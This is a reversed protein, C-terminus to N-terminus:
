SFLRSCLGSTEIAARLDLAPFYSAWPHVTTRGTERTLGQSEGLVLGREGQEPKAQSSHIGSSCSHSKNAQLSFLSLSYFCQVIWLQIHGTADTAWLRVWTQGQGDSGDMGWFIAQSPVCTEPQSINAVWSSYWVIVKSFCCCCWTVIKVNWLAWDLFLICKDESKWTSKKIM